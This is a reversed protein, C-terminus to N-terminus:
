ATEWLDGAADQAQQERAEELRRRAAQVQQAQRAVGDLVARASASIDYAYRYRWDDGIRQFPETTYGHRALVPAIRALCRRLAQDLSGGYRHGNAHEPPWASVDRLADDVTAEAADACARLDAKLVRLGERGLESSREHETRVLTTAHIEWWGSLWRALEGVLAPRLAELEDRADLLRTDAERILAEHDM